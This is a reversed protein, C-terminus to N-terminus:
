GDTRFRAEVTGFLGFDVIVQDGGAIPLPTMCTGTTVIEGARLTVNLRSLENALWALAIRPDGLANAGRGEFTLRDAVHGVVPHQSLDISRWEDPAPEGLVFYHACANDAILHAAGITTFDNYRSDPLEIAPHLTDTAAVVEDVSYPTARPPLDSRMRFAFEAEAVRMDAHTGFPVTSGSEFARERLLRGALPGDVGIHKQGAVSTGAIKWGFLPFRSRQEVRAQIAYGDERTLPRISEPLADIRGGQQWRDWLLDSAARVQAETIM